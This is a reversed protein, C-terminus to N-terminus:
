AIVVDKEEEAEDESDTEEVFDEPDYIVKLILSCSPCTAVDEGEFIQDQLLNLFYSPVFFTVCM